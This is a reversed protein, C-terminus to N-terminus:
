VIIESLFALLCTHAFVIDYRTADRGIRCYRRCATSYSLLMIALKGLKVTTGSRILLLHMRQLLIIYPSPRCMLGIVIPVSM